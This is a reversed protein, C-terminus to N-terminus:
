WLNDKQSTIEAGNGLTKNTNVTIMEREAGIDQQVFSLGM